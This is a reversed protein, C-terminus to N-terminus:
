ALRLAVRAISAAQMAKRRAYRGTSIEDYHSGHLTRLGCSGGVVEPGVTIPTGNHQQLLTNPQAPVM